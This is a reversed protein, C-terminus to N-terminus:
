SLGATNSGRVLLRSQCSKHTSFTIKPKSSLTAVSHRPPSTWPLPALGPTRRQLTSTGFLRRLPTGSVGADFPSGATTAAATDIRCIPADLVRTLSFNLRDASYSVKVSNPAYDTRRQRLGELLQANSSVTPDLATLAFDFAAFIHL